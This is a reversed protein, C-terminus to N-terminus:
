VQLSKVFLKQTYTHISYICLHIYMTFCSSFIPNGRVYWGKNWKRSDLIKNFESNPDCRALGLGGGPRAPWMEPTVPVCMIIILRLHSNQSNSSLNEHKCRLVRVWQAMKGIRSVNITKIGLQYSFYERFLQALLQLYKPILANTQICLPFVRYCASFYKKM